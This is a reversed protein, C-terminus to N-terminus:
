KKTEIDEEDKERSEVLALKVRLVSKCKPCRITLNTIRFTEKVTSM